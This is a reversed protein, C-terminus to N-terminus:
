MRRVTAINFSVSTDRSHVYEAAAATQLPLHFLAKKYVLNEKLFFDGIGGLCSTRRAEPGTQVRQLLSLSRVEASFRDVIGRTDM